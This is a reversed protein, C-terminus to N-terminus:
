IQLLRVMLQRVVAAFEVAHGHIAWLISPLAKQSHLNGTRVMQLSHIQVRCHAIWLGGPGEAAQYEEYDDSDRM